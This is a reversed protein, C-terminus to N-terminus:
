SHLELIMFPIESVTLEAFIQWGFIFLFHPKIILILQFVNEQTGVLSFYGFHELHKQTITM